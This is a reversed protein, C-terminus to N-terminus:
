WTVKANRPAPQAATIMPLMSYTLGVTIKMSGSAYLNDNNAPIQNIAAMQQKLQAIINNMAQNLKQNSEQLQNSLQSNTNTLQSVISHDAATATALNALADATNQQQNINHALNASHFGASQSTVQSERLEQHALAFDTKFNTWTKYAVPRCRWEQCAGAFLGTQFVSNYAIAVIQPITYAV